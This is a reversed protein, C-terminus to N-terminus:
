QQQQLYQQVQKMTVKGTHATDIQEFHQAVYGLGNTQAQTKSIAAGDSLVSNAGLSAALRAQAQQQLEAGTTASAPAAIKARPFFPGDVGGGGPPAAPSVAQISAALAGTAATAALALAIMTPLRQLLSTQSM